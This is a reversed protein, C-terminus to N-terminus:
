APAGALQREALGLVRETQEPWLPSCSRFPEVARRLLGGAAHARLRAPDVPGDYGALLAPAQSGADAPLAGLVAAAHLAAVGSGLDLAPEAATAADLDVLGTRGDPGVVVQDVSFDGHATVAPAPGAALAAAVRDALASARAGLGPVLRAVAAAASTLDAADAGPGRGPLAGPPRRHLAALAAGAAALGDAAARGDAAAPGGAAAGAAALADHLSTGPLWTWAVLGGDPDAGRLVPTWAAAAGPEAGPTGATPEGAALARAAAVVARAEDPRHVRLVVPPGGVPTLLGVWRRQPKHTLPALTAGALDVGPLLGGLAGPLDRAIRALAPLDRDAPPRAVVVRAAPDVALLSGPPAKRVTKDLKPAADAAVTLAFARHGDVDLALACAVGPKYRLYRRRVPSGLREALADDDLLVALGPLDRDRAVLTADGPSLM